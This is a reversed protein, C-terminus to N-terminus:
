KVGSKSIAKEALFLLIIIGAIIIAFNLAERIKDPKNSKYKAYTPEPIKGMSNLLEFYEDEQAKTATHHAVQPHLKRLHEIKEM